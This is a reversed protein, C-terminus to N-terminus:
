SLKASLVWASNFSKNGSLTYNKTESKILKALQSLASTSMVTDFPEISQNNRSQYHLTLCFDLQDDVSSMVRCNAPAKDAKNDFLYAYLFLGIVKADLCIANEITCLDWSLEIDRFGPLLLIQSMLDKLEENSCIDVKNLVSEKADFLELSFSKLKLVARELKELREIAKNFNGSQLQQKVLSVHMALPTMHNNLQHGLMRRSSRM